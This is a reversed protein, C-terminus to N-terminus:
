NILKQENDEDVVVAYGLDECPQENQTNDTESSLFDNILDITFQGLVEKWYGVPPM